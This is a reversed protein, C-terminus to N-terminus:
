MAKRMTQATVRFGLREYPECTGATSAPSSAPGSAPSSAPGSGPAPAPVEVSVSSVGLERGARHVTDLVAEVHGRRPQWPGTDPELVHAFAHVGDSRHELDLRLGAVALGGAYATVLRPAGPPPFGPGSSPFGRGSSPFGPGSSRLGPGSSPTPHATLTLTSARYGLSDYLRMAARNHAFVNLRVVTAGLDRVAEEAAVMAARALGRGRAEPLVELDLLFAEVEDPLPRLRMWVYGATAGVLPRVTWFLHTPTALGEPLLDAFVSEALAVAEPEAALGAAVQQAAFGSRSRPSWADFEAWTM